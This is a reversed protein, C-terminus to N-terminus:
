RQTMAPESPDGLLLAVRQAAPRGEGIDTCWRGSV